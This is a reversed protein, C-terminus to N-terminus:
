QRRYLQLQRSVTTDRAQVPIQWHVRPRGGDGGGWGLDKLDKLILLGREWEANFYQEKDDKVTYATMNMNQTHSHTHTHAHTHTHTHPPPPAHTRAHM